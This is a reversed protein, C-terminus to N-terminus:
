FHIVQLKEQALLALRKERDVIMIKHFLDKGGKQSDAEYSLIVSHYVLLNM